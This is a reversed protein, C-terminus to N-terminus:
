EPVEEAELWCASIRRDGLPFEPPDYKDCPAFRKPCRPHFRCGSPMRGPVPPSGPIIALREDTRGATALRPMSAILGQTYPHRPEQMITATEGTEIIRGGYMVAVRSCVREVVGLDHTILMLAFGHEDQLSKLLDLYQLQITPDLATTPEDAILLKPACALAIAGAVRQRMGGSMEHPYSVLRQEPEPIWVGRLLDLARQKAARWSLGDHIVSPEAVQTGIRIWPTLSHLPDQLITAVEAGRMRRLRDSTMAMVDEGALHIDGSEIALGTGLLRPIAAALTSKGSGSEGVIGITEGEAVQLNVGDLIRVTGSPGTASVSLGAIDLLFDSM